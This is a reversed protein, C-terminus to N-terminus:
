RTQNVCNVLVTVWGGAATNATLVTGVNATGATEVAAAARGDAATALSKGVALAASAVMKTTGLVSIEAEQGAKPKNELVGVVRDTTGTVAAALGNADLKVFRGQLGSLDAAAVLTIKVPSSIGYAM